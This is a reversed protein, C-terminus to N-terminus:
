RSPQRSVGPKGITPIIRPRPRKAPMSNTSSRLIFCGTESSKRILMMLTNIILADEHAPGVLTVPSFLMM